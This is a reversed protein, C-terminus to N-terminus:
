SVPTFANGKQNPDLIPKDGGLDTAEILKVYKNMAFYDAAILVGTLVVTTAAWAIVRPRLLKKIFGM